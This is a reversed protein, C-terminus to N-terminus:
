AAEMLVLLFEELEKDYVEPISLSESIGISVISERLVSRAELDFEARSKSYFEASERYGFRARRRFMGSADIVNSIGGPFASFDSSGIFEIELSVRGRSGIGFTSISQNSGGHGRTSILSM